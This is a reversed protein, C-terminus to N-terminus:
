GILKAAVIQQRIQLIYSLVEKHPINVVKNYIGPQLFRVTPWSAFSLFPCCVGVEKWVPWYSITPDNRGGMAKRWEQPLKDWM